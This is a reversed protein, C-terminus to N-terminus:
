EGADVVIQPLLALVVWGQEEVAYVVLSKFLQLAVRLEHVLQVCNVCFELVIHAHLWVLVLRRHSVERHLVTQSVDDLYIGSIDPRKSSNNIIFKEVKTRAEAKNEAHVIGFEAGFIGRYTVLYSYTKM